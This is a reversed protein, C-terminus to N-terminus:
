AEARSHRTLNCGTVGAMIIACGVFDYWALAEKLLVAGSVVGVVTTLSVLVSSRSLPLNAIAVNNSWFGLLSCGVSLFLLYGYIRSDGLFTWYQEMDGRLLHRGVALATLVVASSWMMVATVETSTFQGPATAKRAILRNISACLVCGCMLLRGINTSSYPDFDFLNLFVIGFVTVLMFATERRSLPEKLFFYGMVPAVVTSLSCLMGIEASAIHDLASYELINYCVPMLLSLAIVPGLPRGRLELRVIGCRWLLLLVTGSIIYRASLIDFVSGGSIQEVRKTAYWSLGMMLSSGIGALYGLWPKKM